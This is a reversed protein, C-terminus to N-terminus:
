LYSLRIDSLIPRSGNKKRYKNFFTGLFKQLRFVKGLKADRFRLGSDLLPPHTASVV